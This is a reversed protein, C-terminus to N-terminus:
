ISWSTPLVPGPLSDCVTWPAAWSWCCGPPKPLFRSLQLPSAKSLRGRGTQGPSHAGHSFPSPRTRPSPTHQGQALRAVVAEAHLTWAGSARTMSVSPVVSLRSRGLLLRMQGGQSRGAAATLPACHNGPILPKFRLGSAPRSCLSLSLSSNVWGSRCLNVSCKSHAPSSSPTLAVSFLFAPGSARPLLTIGVSQLAM